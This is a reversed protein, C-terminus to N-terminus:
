IVRCRAELDEIVWGKLESSERLVRHVNEMAERGTLSSIRRSWTAFRGSYVGPPNGADVRFELVSDGYKEHSSGQTFHKASFLETNNVSWYLLGSSFDGNKVLEVYHGTGPQQSDGQAHVRALPSFLLAVVLVAVVVKAAARVKVVKGRVPSALVVVLETFGRVRRSGECFEIERVTKERKLM